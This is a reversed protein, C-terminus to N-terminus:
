GACRPKVFWAGFSRIMEAFREAVGFFRVCCVAAVGRVDGDRAVFRAGSGHM